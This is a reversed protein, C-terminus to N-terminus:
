LTVKGQHFAVQLVRVSLVTGHVRHQLSAAEHAVSVSRSVRMVNMARLPNVQVSDLHIIIFLDDTVLAGPFSIPSGYLSDCYPEHQNSQVEERESAFSSRRARRDAASLGARCPAVTARACAAEAFERARHGLVDFNLGSIVVDM